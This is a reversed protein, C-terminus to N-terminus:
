RPQSRRYEELMKRVRDYSERSHRRDIFTDGGEKHFQTKWYEVGEPTVKNIKLGHDQMVSLAEVNLRAIRGRFVTGISVSAAELEPRMEEPIKRWTKLSILTAGPLPQWRLDTMNPTLSFWQFSLAAVPPAAFADVLGTQLSPLLDNISLPVPQFGAQKILELYETDSGWFFLKQKQLDEPMFVPRRSFFYIWGASSWNLVKFGKETLQAEIDPGIKELLFDLEDDTRTMLPFTIIDIDPALPELGTKTLAAAHLQGIRIKRLLDPEDGAVGGPYIRLKVKGSSIKQWAAGIELLADHWPSGEPAVTGLKVTLAAAPNPTSFGMAAALCLAALSRKM